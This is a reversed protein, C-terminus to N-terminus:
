VQNFVGYYGDAAYEIGIEDIIYMNIYFFPVTWLVKTVSIVKGGLPVDETM